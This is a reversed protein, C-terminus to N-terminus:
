PLRRKQERWWLASYILLSCILMDLLLTAVLGSLNPTHDSLASQHTGFIPEFIRLPWSLLLFFVTAVWEPGSLEQSVYAGVLFGGFLFGLVLM